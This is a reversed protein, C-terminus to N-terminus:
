LGPYKSDHVDTSPIFEGFKENPRSPLGAIEECPRQDDGQEKLNRVPCKQRYRRRNQRNDPRRERNDECELILLAVRAKIFGKRKGPLEGRVTQVQGVLQRRRDALQISCLGARSQFLHEIAMERPQSRQAEEQSLFLGPFISKFRPVSSKKGFNRRRLALGYKLVLQFRVQRVGLQLFDNRMSAVLLSQNKMQLIFSDAVQVVFLEDAFEYQNHQGACKIIKSSRLARQLSHLIIRIRAIIIRDGNHQHGHKNRQYRKTEKCVGLLQSFGGLDFM